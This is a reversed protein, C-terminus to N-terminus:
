QITCVTRNTRKIEKKIVNWCRLSYEHRSGTLGYVLRYMCLDKDECVDTSLKSVKTLRVHMDKLQPLILGQFVECILLEAGRDMFLSVGSGLTIM